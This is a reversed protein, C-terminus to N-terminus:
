QNEIEILKEMLNKLEIEVEKLIDLTGNKNGNAEAKRVSEGYRCYNNKVSSTILLLERETLTITYNNM